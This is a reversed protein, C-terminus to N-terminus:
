KGPQKKEKIVKNEKCDEKEWQEFQKRMDEVDDSINIKPLKRPIISRCAFHAYDIAPYKVCIQTFSTDGTRTM